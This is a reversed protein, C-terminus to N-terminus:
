EDAGEMAATWARELGFYALRPQFFPRSRVAKYHGRLRGDSGESDIQFRFIDNLLVIEGEMGCIETVQTVRRGGDRQREVQIIIDVASVIQTRIASLPLGMSGMQVMNEIRTVADRTNNAHITSMSGDHGTNMAQLMDFAESGRVEGIIIRDPRMRLANRVLDRQSVEGRGELNAPRTEMRVVHPQQLQLEAADEVTIIREGHDILRSMANLLTTKGSGTGGSIIVNLRIQSAIELVRAVPRTMAGFEILKNFDITKKGFKRISVYPGDLALPPLVINVRSGDKLRADVMPSSEDVRRGVAAAIRQCVNILHATDRFRVPANFVKGRREVFVTTPGNVMIDNITEDELLPELPGLGLMDDVLETALQRQERGNLQIRRETAIESILLEVEPILLEPPSNSISTPDLKALCLARLESLLTDPSAKSAPEPAPPPEAVPPPVLPAPGAEALGHQTRGRRGFVPSTVHM